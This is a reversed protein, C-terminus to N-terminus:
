TDLLTRMRPLVLLLPADVPACQLTLPLEVSPTRRLGQFTDIPTL